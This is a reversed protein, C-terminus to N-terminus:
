FDIKLLLFIISGLDLGAHSLDSGAATSTGRLHQVMSSGHRPPTAGHLLRETTNRRPPTVGHLLRATTGRRRPATTGRWRPAMTDHRRPATGAGHHRVTSFSPLLLTTGGHIPSLTTTAARLKPSISIFSLSRSKPLSLTWPLFSLSDCINTHLMHSLLSLSLFIPRCTHSFVCLGYSM